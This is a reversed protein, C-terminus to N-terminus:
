PQQAGQSLDPATKRAEAILASLIKPSLARRIQRESIGSDLATGIMAIAWWCVFDARSAEGALRSV